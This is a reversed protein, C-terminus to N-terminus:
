RENPRSERETVESYWEPMKSEYIALQEPKMRMLLPIYTDVIKKRTPDIYRKKYM